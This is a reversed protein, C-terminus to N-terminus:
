RGRPPRDKTGLTILFGLLAVPGHAGLLRRAQGDGLLPVARSFYGAVEGVWAPVPRGGTEWVSVSVFTARGLM